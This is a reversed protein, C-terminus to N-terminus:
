QKPFVRLQVSVGDPDNSMSIDPIMAPIRSASPNLGKDHAFSTCKMLSIPKLVSSCAKGKSNKGRRGESLNM